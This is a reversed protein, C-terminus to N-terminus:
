RTVYNIVGSVFAVAAFAVALAAQEAAVLAIAVAGFIAFEIALRAPAALQFRAKPSVFLGWTVAVLV